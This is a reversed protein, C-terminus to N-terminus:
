AYAKTVLVSHPLMGDHNTFTVKVTWGQPIVVTMDGGYFGNFNLAGNNANSGAVIDLAVSKAQANVKMWSPTQLAALAPYAFALLAAIGSPSILRGGPKKKKTMREM